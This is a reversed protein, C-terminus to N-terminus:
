REMTPNRPGLSGRRPRRQEGGGGVRVGHGRPGDQGSSSPVMKPPTTAGARTLYPTPPLSPDPSPHRRPLAPAPPDRHSSPVGSPPNPPEGPAGM